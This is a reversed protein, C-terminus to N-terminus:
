YHPPAEDLIEPKGLERLERLRQMIAKNQVTLTEIQASQRTVVQNLQEVTDEFFAIRTELEILRDNM